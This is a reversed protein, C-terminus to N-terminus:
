RDSDLYSPNGPVGGGADGPYVLAVERADDSGRDPVTLVLLRYRATSGVSKDSLDDNVGM